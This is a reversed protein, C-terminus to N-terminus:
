GQRGWIDDNGRVSERTGCGWVLSCVSVGGLAQGWGSARWLRAHGSAHGGEGGVASLRVAAWAQVM